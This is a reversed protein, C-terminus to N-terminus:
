VACLSSRICLFLKGLIKEPLLITKVAQKRQRKKISTYRKGAEPDFSHRSNSRTSPLTQSSGIPWRKTGNKRLQTLLIQYNGPESVSEM